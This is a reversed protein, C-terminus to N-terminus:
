DRSYKKLKRKDSESLSNLGNKSVKDLIADIEEQVSEPREKKRPQRMRSIRYKTYGDILLFEPKKVVLVLFIATPVLLLALVWYNSIIIHPTLLMATLVGAIAGGLHAEHGINGVKRKLGYITYLIYLVGFIWAPFSIPIFLLGLGNDPFNAIYAYIVGSVAGSAGIARYDGHNRHIFLALVNSGALSIVYVAVFFDLGIINLLESGFLYLAWMNFILHMWNLHLFTSTITRYYEKYVLIKDVEFLYKEFFYEDKFGKYSVICIIAIFVLLLFEM